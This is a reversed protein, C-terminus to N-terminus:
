FLYQGQFFGMAVSSITSWQTIERLMDAIATSLNGIDFVELSRIQTFNAEETQM